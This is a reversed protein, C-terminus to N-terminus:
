PFLTLDSVGESTTVAAERGLLAFHLAGTRTAHVLREAQEQTVAVTVLQAQWEEETAQEVGSRTVTGVALVTVDDLLPRTEFIVETGEGTGPAAFTNFIAVRSGPRLFAGVKAPDELLVSVAMQGDPVEIAPEDEVDTGVSAQLVMQGAPLDDLFVLASASPDTADLAGVPALDAAVDVQRVLGTQRADALTTGREVREDTLLVSAAQQDALARDDVGAVYLFVATGAVVALLVTLIIPILPRKM